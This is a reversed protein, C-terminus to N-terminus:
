YLGGRRLTRALKNAFHWALVPPVANGVSVYNQAPSSTFIFDDPFSQIKACERVTLRRHGKYHFQINGHHHARITPAPADAKIKTTGQWRKAYFVAKSYENHNPVVQERGLIDDIAQKVTIMPKQGLKPNEAHTEKPTKFEVNLDSRIGVIFVRRRNQPVGYNAANVLHHTVHYGQGAKTFENKITDLANFLILGLVNEAIFALPNKLEIVKKMQKYLRGRETQFCKHKGSLSFDQCPFGGIVVNCAPLISPTKDVIDAINGRTIPQEFNKDYTDCAPPHIDNAFITRFPTRHFYDGLFKFGGRMGLDLGGCGSFLSLVTLEGMDECELM